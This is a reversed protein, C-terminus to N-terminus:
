CVTEGERVGEFNGYRQLWSLQRLLWALLFVSGYIVLDLTAVQVLDLLRGLQSDHNWAFATPSPLGLRVYEHAFPWFLEVGVSDTFLCDLLPHSAMAASFLLAARFPAGGGRVWLALVGGCLWAFGLSHTFDHHWGRGAFPAFPLFKLLCDLDPAAGLAAALLCYRWDPLANRKLPFAALVAAGLLGHGIPTPM